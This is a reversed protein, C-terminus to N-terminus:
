QALDFANGVLVLQNTQGGMKNTVAAQGCPYGYVTVTDGVQVNGSNGSILFDVFTLDETVLVIESSEKGGMMKTIESDPPYDQVLGVEGTLKVVQGYFDWPKKFVDGPVADKAISKLDGAQKLHNIAVPVNGNNQINIDSKDWEMSTNTVEAVIQETAEEAVKTVEEKVSQKVSDVAESSCGTLLVTCAALVALTSKMKM